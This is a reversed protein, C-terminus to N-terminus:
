PHYSDVAEKVDKHIEFVKVMGTLELVSQVESHNAIIKLSGGKQNIAKLATVLASIFTSDIFECESLDVIMKHHNEEIDNMLFKKFEEANDKTARTLHVHKVLIGKIEEQSFDLDIKMEIEM